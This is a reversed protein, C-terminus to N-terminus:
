RKNLFQYIFANYLCNSSHNTQTQGSVGPPVIKYKRSDMFQSLGSAQLPVSLINKQSRPQKVLIVTPLTDMLIVLIPLTPMLDTPLTPLTPVMLQTVMLVMCFLPILRPMLKLNPMLLGRALIVTPLTDMLIALIPLTPMLDTPLIPLTPVMLPTVMLVMCFLPILRPMLKLNPM